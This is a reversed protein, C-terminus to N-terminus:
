ARLLAAIPVPVRGRSGRSGYDLIHAVLTRAREGARRIEDVHRARPEDAHLGDGAMEAHGM